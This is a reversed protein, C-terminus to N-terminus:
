LNSYAIPIAGVALLLLVATVLTAVFVQITLYLIICLYAITLFLNAVMVYIYARKINRLCGQIIMVVAVLMYFAAWIM